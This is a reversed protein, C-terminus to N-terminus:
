RQCVNLLEFLDDGIATTWPSVNYVEQLRPVLPGTSGDTWGLLTSCWCLAALYLREQKATLGPLEDIQGQNSVAKEDFDIALDDQSLAETPTHAKSELPPSM